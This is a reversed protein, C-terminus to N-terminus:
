WVDGSESNWIWGLGMELSWVGIKMWSELTLVASESGPPEFAQFGLNDLTFRDIYGVVLWIAKEPQPYNPFLMHPCVLVM